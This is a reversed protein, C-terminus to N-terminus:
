PLTLIRPGQETIAVTHEVHASLKGDRTVVTWGNRRVRTEHTGQNLMPEIALVLGPELVLDNRLLEPSVFNPVQPDEHMARGIGHGVYQRVVGYGRGEAYSQVARGIDSLRGGARAAEIGRRLAEYAAEILAQAEASVSGIPLTNAADGYWGGLNVGVDVSLIDGEELRRRNPIGHVVEDNVSACISAPYGRYGLFAPEGGRRRILREVERDIDRTRVGPRAMDRMLEHCEAVIRGAERMREIQEPSKRTPM